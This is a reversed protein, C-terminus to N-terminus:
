INSVPRLVGRDKSSFKFVYRDVSIPSIFVHLDSAVLLSKRIICFVKVSPQVILCCWKLTEESEQLSSKITILGRREMISSYVGAQVMSRLFSSDETCCKGNDKTTASSDYTQSLTFNDPM